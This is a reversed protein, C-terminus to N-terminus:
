RAVMDGFIGAIMVYCSQESGEPGKFIVHQAGPRLHYLQKVIYSYIPRVACIKDAVALVRVNTQKSYISVPVSRLRMWIMNSSKDDRMDFPCLGDHALDM